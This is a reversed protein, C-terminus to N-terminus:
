GACFAGGAMTRWVAQRCFIKFDLGLLGLFSRLPVGSQHTRCLQRRARGSSCLLDLDDAALRANLSGCPAAAMLAEVRITDAVDRKWAGTIDPLIFNSAYRKV